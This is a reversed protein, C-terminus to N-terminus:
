SILISLKKLAKGSLLSDAAIEQSESITLEPDVTRIGTAANAIVVQNQSQTGNGKLINKFLHAAEEVSSGGALDASAIPEWGLDDPEMIRGGHNDRVEFAGTLSIEDYGDLSHVIAFQKKRMQMVQHYLRSIVLSSTGLLQHTPQAPNVLPGLINFFTRVGLEKRIPAVSKLAPHFFPAHFFCINADNLQQKLVTEEKSFQYGIEQLTNSSGAISSSGYNGHKSVKYGAGAIVFASLTSINFTNKGDGGTGVIDITKQGELDVSVCLNLLADCFGTLEEPTIPRMMFVTMFAAVQTPNYQGESINTLVEKAQNRTLPQHQFLQDLLAKM